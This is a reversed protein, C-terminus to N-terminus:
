NLKQYLKIIEEKNLDEARCMINLNLEEFVRCIKEKKYLKILNNNLTKRKSSFCILLFKYLKKADIKIDHKVLKFVVSSVNPIPYFNNKSVKLLLEYNFLINILNSIPTKEEKKSSVIIRKYADDQIMLVVENITKYNICLKLLIESTIYYPINGIIYPYTSIDIKLIDNNIIKLLPWKNKLKNVYFGDIECITLLNNYRDILYKTLAGDGPGIELVEENKNNYLFTSIQKSIEDNILFNQGLKKKYTNENKVM